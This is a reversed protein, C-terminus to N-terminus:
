FIGLFEQPDRNISPLSARLFNQFDTAVYSIEDPDHAFAIIQGVNGPAAPSYDQILLLTGGGFGAFPPWGDHFWGPRIRRDRAGTEVYGEYNPARRRLGDREGLAAVLPLFDYGTLFGPRSVAM